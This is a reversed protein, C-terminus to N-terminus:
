QLYCDSVIFNRRRDNRVGTPQTRLARRSDLLVPPWFSVARTDMWTTMAPKVRCDMRRRLSKKRLLHIRPDLGRMVLSSATERIVGNLMVGDQVIAKRRRRPKRVRLSRRQKVSGADLPPRLASFREPAASLVRQAHWLAHFVRTFANEGRCASAPGIGTNEQKKASESDEM